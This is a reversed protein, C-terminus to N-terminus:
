GDTDDTDTTGDDTNTVDSDTGMLDREDCFIDFLTAYGDAGPTEDEGFVVVLDSGEIDKLKAECWALLKNIDTENHDLMWHTHDRVLSKQTDFSVYVHTLNRFSRQRLSNKPEHDFWLQTRLIDPGLEVRAIADRQALLIEKSAWSKCLLSDSDVLFINSSYSLLATEIYIQRCVEPLHFAALRRSPCCQLDSFEPHQSVISGDDEVAV